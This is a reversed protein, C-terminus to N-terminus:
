KSHNSTEQYVNRVSRFNSSGYELVSRIYSKYLRMLTKPKCGWKSGSLLKLLGLRQRGKKANEDIHANFTLKKDLIVGLLKAQQVATLKEGFLELETNKKTKLM